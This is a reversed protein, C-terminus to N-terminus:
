AGEFARIRKLLAKKNFHAFEKGPWFNKGMKNLVPITGYEYKFMFLIARELKLWLKQGGSRRTYTLLHADVRRVGRREFLAAARGAVSSAVRRVGRKTTGIYVIRSRGRPYKLLKNAALIYVLRETGLAARGLTM